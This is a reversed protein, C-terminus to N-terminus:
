GPVLVLLQQAVQKEGTMPNSCLLPNAVTAVAAGYIGTGVGALFYLVEVDM